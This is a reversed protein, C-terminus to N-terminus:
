DTRIKLDFEVFGRVDIPSDTKLVVTRFFTPTIDLSRVSSISHLHLHLGSM